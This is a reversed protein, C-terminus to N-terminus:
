VSSVTVGGIGETTPLFTYNEFGTLRLVCDSSKNLEVNDRAKKIFCQSQPIKNLYGIFREDTSYIWETKSACNSFYSWVLGNKGGKGEANGHLTNDITWGYPGTGTKRMYRSLARCESDYGQFVINGGEKVMTPLFTYAERGTVSMLCDHTRDVPLPAVPTPYCPSSEVKHLSALKEYHPRILVAMDAYCIKPQISGLRNRGRYTTRDNYDFSWEYPENKWNHSKYLYRNMSRCLDDYGQYVSTITRKVTPLYWLNEGKKAEMKMLCLSDDNLAVMDLDHHAVAVAADDYYGNDVCAGYRFQLINWIVFLVSNRKM